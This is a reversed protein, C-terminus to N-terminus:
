GSFNTYVDCLDCDDMKLVLFGSLFLINETHCRLMHVTSYLEINLYAANMLYSGCRERIDLTM